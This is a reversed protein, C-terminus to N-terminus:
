DREEGKENLHEPVHSSDVTYKLIHGSLLISMTRLHFLLIRVHGYFISKM